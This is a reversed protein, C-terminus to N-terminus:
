LRHSVTLSTTYESYNGTTPENTSFGTRRIMLTMTNSPTLQYRATANMQLSSTSESTSLAVTLSTVLQNELMRYQPTVSYTQITTWPVPGVRSTVISVGPVVTLDPTPSAASNLSVTHSVSGNGARMPNDDASKQFMYSLSASQFLADRGFMVAQSTGLGITAFRIMENVSSAYNRMTLVNTLISANWENVPRVSVNGAFTQRITTHLKQDLLNDNQRTWMFTTSWGSFRLNTGLMIERQDTVLSAVGLSNYGPGIRRYGAKFGLQSLNVNMNVTYAYDASSSLRPTYFGRIASPIKDSAFTTSNMDRTFASGSVEGNLSLVNEFLKLAGALGVVLNEQPTEQYPNVPSGVQTSDPTVISDPYIVQFRSPTDRTRVFLLDFYSESDRGIGIKGGYLYRDFGSQGGGAGTRRTYGGIASFRFLGPNITVGGGRILIGNLTFPTFSETFDGANAYGWEWQPRIGLQNIQNVQHGVSRSSGETSLLFNFSVTMADYFSITPRFYLRATSSPRRSDRGSISYLEGYTGIDGSLSIADGHLGQIVASPIGTQSHAAVSVSLLAVITFFIHKSMQHTGEEM